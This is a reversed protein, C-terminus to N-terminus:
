TLSLSDLCRSLIVPNIGPKSLHHVQLLSLASDDILLGFHMQYGGPVVVDLGM